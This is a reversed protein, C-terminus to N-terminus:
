SYFMTMFNQKTMKIYGFSNLEVDKGDAYYRYGGNILIPIQRIRAYYDRLLDENSMIDFYPSLNFGLYVNGSADYPADKSLYEIQYDDGADAFEVLSLPNEGQWFRCNFSQDFLIWKGIYAEMMCHGDLWNNWYEATICKALRAQINKSNLLSIKLKSQNECTLRLKNAKARETLQAITLNDDAYSQTCIWDAASIIAIPDNQYVIWHKNNQGLAVFVYLGEQTMDYTQGLLLKRGPTEWLGNTIQVGDNIEEPFVPTIIM